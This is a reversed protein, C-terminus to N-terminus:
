RRTDVLGAYGVATGAPEEVDNELSELAREEVAKFM